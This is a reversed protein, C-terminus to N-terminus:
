SYGTKSYIWDKDVSYVAPIGPNKAEITCLITDGDALAEDYSKLALVVAADTMPHQIDLVTALAERHVFEDSMDVAGVLASELEGTQISKLAIELAKVGSLEECSVTFGTGSFNFHHNIRNAPINPMTGLVGPANLIPCISEEIEEIEYLAESVDGMSLMERLRKRFGYRNIETDAGIGTFVGTQVKNLKIGRDVLNKTTHLILLQQGLAHKLDSPPSSLEKANFAVSDRRKREVNQNLLLHLYATSNAIKETQLEVGIVAVKKKAIPPEPIDYKTKPNWEELLVHANNGGFGFNSIGAVRNGKSPWKVPQDEVSFVTGTFSENLPFANPSPPLMKHKMAALVKIISGIGSATISHGINGKLSGLHMALAKGYVEQMSKLEISDGASTGTAHCEIYHLQEPKIGSSELAQKMSRVQGSQAPSLFGGQKGDNSLGIGRLVGLITDGAKIADKLRKIVIFGAGESPVLGDADKHFPRSQGSPSLANLATFGVHLFLQDSACVGGVVMMDHEGNVLADCGLKVAYLSSACAADLAFADGKIGIARATLIAPLGSMFRNMDNVSALPKKWEPFLRQLHKEEFYQSFFRTPYSLNGMILGTRERITDRAYGADKLAYKAAYFSWKFVPDLGKVIEEDIDFSDPDFCSEFDRIYGGKNNWSRSKTDTAGDPMMVDNMNIRWSDPNATSINVQNNFVMQWLEEPTFCGPFVCGQGIIAIPEFKRM